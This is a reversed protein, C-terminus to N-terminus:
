PKRTYNEFSFRMKCVSTQMICSNISLSKGQTSPCAIFITKLRQSKVVEHLASTAKDSTKRCHDVSDDRNRYSMLVLCIFYLAILSLDRRDTGLAEWPVYPVTGFVEAFSILSVSDGLIQRLCFPNCVTKLLHDSPRPQPWPGPFTTSSFPRSESLAAANTQVNWKEKQYVMCISCEYM